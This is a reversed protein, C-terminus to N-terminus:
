KDDGNSLGKQAVFRAVFAGAVAVFSLAAFVGRPMTDSFFPLAIEIGSMTAAVIMLRASWAKRLVARWDPILSM